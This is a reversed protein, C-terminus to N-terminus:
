LYRRLSVTLGSTHLALQDIRSIATDTLVASVHPIILSDGQCCNSPFSGNFRSIDIAGGLRFYDGLVLKSEAATAAARM